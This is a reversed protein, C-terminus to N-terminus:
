QISPIARNADKMNKWDDEGIEKPIRQKIDWEKLQNATARIAMNVQNIGQLIEKKPIPRLQLYQGLMSLNTRLLLLRARVFPQNYYEPQKTQIDTLDKLLLQIQDRFAQLNSQPKQGLDRVMARWEPWRQMLEAASLLDSTATFRWHRQLSKIWVDENEIAKKQNKYRVEPDSQCGMVLILGLILVKSSFRQIMKMATTDPYLFLSAGSCKGISYLFLSCSAAKQIDM